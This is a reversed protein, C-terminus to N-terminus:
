GVRKPFALDRLWAAAPDTFDATCVEQWPAGAWLRACMIGRFFEDKVTPPWAERNVRTQEGNMDLNIWGRVNLQVLTMMVRHTVIPPIGLEALSIQCAEGAEPCIYARLQAGQLVSAIGTRIFETLMGGHGREAAGWSLETLGERKSLAVPLALCLNIVTGLDYEMDKRQFTDLLQQAASAATMICPMTGSRSFADSTIPNGVIALAGIIIDRAHLQALMEATPMMPHSGTLYSQMGGVRRLMTTMLAAATERERAVGRATGIVDNMVAGITYMDAVGSPPLVMTSGIQPESAAAEAVATAGAPAPAAAAAAAAGGALPQPSFAAQAPNARSAAWSLPNGRELPRPPDPIRLVSPKRGRDISRARSPTSSASSSVEDAWRGPLVPRPPLFLERIPRAAEATAKAASVQENRENASAIRAAMQKEATPEHAESM